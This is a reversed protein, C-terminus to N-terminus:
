RREHVYCYGGIVFTHKTLSYGKKPFASAARCRQVSVNCNEKNESRFMIQPDSGIMIVNKHLKLSIGHKPKERFAYIDIAKRKNETYGLIKM